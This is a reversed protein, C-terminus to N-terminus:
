SLAVTTRNVAGDGILSTSFVRLKKGDGSYQVGNPLCEGNYYRTGKKMQWTKTVSTGQARDLIDPLSTTADNDYGNLPIEYSRVGSVNSADDENLHTNELIEVARNLDAQNLDSTVETLTGAPNDIWIQTKRLQTM